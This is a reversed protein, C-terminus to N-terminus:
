FQVPMYRWRHKRVTKLKTATAVIAKSQSILGTIRSHSSSYFDIQSLLKTLILFRTKAAYGIHTGPCFKPGRNAPRDYLTVLLGCLAIYFSQAVSNVMSHLHSTFRRGIRGCLRLAYHVFCFAHVLLINTLWVTHQRATLNWVSVVKWIVTICLILPNLCYDWYSAKDATHWEHNRWPM